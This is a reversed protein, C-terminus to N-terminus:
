VFFRTRERSPRVVNRDMSRAELRAKARTKPKRLTIIESSSNDNDLKFGRNVRTPIESKKVPKGSLHHSRGVISHFMLSVRLIITYKAWTLLVDPFPAAAARKPVEM